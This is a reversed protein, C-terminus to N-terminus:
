DLLLMIVPSITAPTLLFARDEGNFRGLGAIQGKANISRAFVLEWGSNAPILGNLDQIGKDAEYIFAHENNSADWMIGVLQDAQNIGYFEANPYADLTPVLEATASGNLWLLPYSISGTSDHSCGAIINGSENIVSAYGEHEPHDPNTGLDTMGGTQDWVFAHYSWDSTSAIGVVKGYNNTYYALSFGGYYYNQDSALTGLDIMSGNDYLFAHYVTLGDYDPKDAWGVIRGNNFIRYAFSTPGGLDGLDQPTADANSWLVARSNSVGAIQGSNNIGWATTNGGLGLLQRLGGPRSWILGSFTTNSADALRGVVSAFDNLDNARSGNDGITGLNTINYRVTAQALGPLAASLLAVCAVVLATLPFYNNIRSSVRAIADTFNM